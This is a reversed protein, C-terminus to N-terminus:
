KKINELKNDSYLNLYLNWYPYHEKFVREDIVVDAKLTETKTYELTIFQKQIIFYKINQKSKGINVYDSLIDNDLDFICINIDEDWGTNETNEVWILYNNDDIFYLKVIFNINTKFLLYKNKLFLRNNIIYNIDNNCVTYSNDKDCNTDKNVHEKKQIYTILQNTIYQNM